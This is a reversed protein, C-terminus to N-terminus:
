KYCKHLIEFIFIAICVLIGVVLIVFIGGINEFNLQGEVTSESCSKDDLRNLWKEKLKKM